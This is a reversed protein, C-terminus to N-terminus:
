KENRAAAIIMNMRARELRAPSLNGWLLPCGKPSASDSGKEVLTINWFHQVFGGGEDARSTSLIELVVRQSLRKGEDVNRRITGDSDLHAANTIEGGLLLEEVSDTLPLTHNQVEDQIARSSRRPGV